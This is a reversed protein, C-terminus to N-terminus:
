RDKGFLFVYSVTKDIGYLLNGVVLGVLIFVDFPLWFLDSRSVGEFTEM